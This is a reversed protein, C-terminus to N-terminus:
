LEVEKFEVGANQEYAYAAQLLKKEGMAPGMIQLGIPMDNKDKGCPVSIGCIGALNASTTLIDALYMKMPDESIEGSKFATEPSVPAVILDCQEYAKEFDQRILTRVKQARHYYKHDEYSSLVYTGLMIRRQVEKGFGRSRSEFYTEIIDDTGTYRKGYRIGDFRALNTCAEATAIVYYTAIAYKTHPLSVPVIEAGMAELKAIAAEVSAKVDADM